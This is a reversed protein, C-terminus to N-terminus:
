TSKVDADAAPVRHWSYFKPAKDGPGGEMFHLEKSDPSMWILAKPDGLGELLSRRVIPKDAPSITVAVTRGVRPGKVLFRRVSKTAVTGAQSEIALSMLGLIPEELTAVFSTGSLVVTATGSPTKWPGAVDVLDRALRAEGYTAYFDSTARSNALLKDREKGEDERAEKVEAFRTDVLKDHAPKRSAEELLSSAEQVFGADLFRKAINSAAM